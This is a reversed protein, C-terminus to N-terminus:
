TSSVVARIVKRTREVCVRTGQGSQAVGACRM